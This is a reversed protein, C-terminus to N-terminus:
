SINFVICMYVEIYIFFNDPCIEQPNQIKTLNTDPYFFDFVGELTSKQFIM